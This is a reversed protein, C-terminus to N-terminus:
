KSIRFRYCTIDTIHDLAYMRSGPTLNLFPLLDSDDTLLLQLATDPFDIPTKCVPGHRGLILIDTHEAIWRFTSIYNSEQVSPTSFTLVENNTQLMYTTIPQASRDLYSLDTLNFVVNDFLELPEGVAYCYLRTGLPTMRDNLASLIAYESESQPM